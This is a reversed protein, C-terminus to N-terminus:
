ISTHKKGVAKRMGVRKGGVGSRGDEGLV